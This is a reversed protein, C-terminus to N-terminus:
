QGFRHADRRLRWESEIALNSRDGACTRSDTERDGLTKRLLAGADRHQLDVLSGRL